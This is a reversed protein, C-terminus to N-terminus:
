LASNMLAQEGPYFHAHRQVAHAAILLSFRVQEGCQHCPPFEEGSVCTVEHDHHHGSHSVKYIGSKPVQEGPRYEQVRFNSGMSKVQLYMTM